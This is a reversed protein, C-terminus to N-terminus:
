PAWIRPCSSAPWRPSRRSRPCTSAFETENDRAQGLVYFFLRDRIIPGGVELTLNQNEVSDFENADNLTRPADERFEDIDWNGSLRISFDNSGSKTVANIVGGTARGFEAQYGGTKVEITDYFEFPVLSAGLYNDFNTINLGNVYFANEAISSGGIAAQGSFSANKNAAGGQIATPALLTLALANQGVPIRSALEQVDLQIGTTTENFSLQARAATVVIEDGGGGSSSMDFAYVNSSSPSVQVGRSETPAYGPASISVTYQGTPIIQLTFEGQANTTSNRVFGQSESRVTV